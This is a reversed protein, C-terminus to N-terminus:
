AHDAVTVDFEESQLGRIRIRGQTTLEHEDVVIAPLADNAHPGFSEIVRRSAIYRRTESNPASM